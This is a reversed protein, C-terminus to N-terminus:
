MSEAAAVELLQRCIAESRMRPVEFVKKTEDAFEITLTPVITEVQSKTVIFEVSPNAYRLRPLNRRRFHKAGMCNHKGKFSYVLSVKRVSPNIKTAGLGTTLRELLATKSM